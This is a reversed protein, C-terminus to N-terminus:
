RLSSITYLHIPCLHPMHTPSRPRGREVRPNSAGSKYSHAVIKAPSQRTSAGNMHGPLSDARWDATPLIRGGPAVGPKWTMM